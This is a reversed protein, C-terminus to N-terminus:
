GGGSGGGGKWLGRPRYIKIPIDLAPGLDTYYAPAPDSIYGQLGRIQIQIWINEPAPAPNKFSSGLGQPLILM